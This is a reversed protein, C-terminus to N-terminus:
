KRVPKEEPPDEALDENEQGQAKQGEQLADEAGGGEGAAVQQEEEDKRGEHQQGFLEALGPGAPLRPWSLRAPPLFYQV